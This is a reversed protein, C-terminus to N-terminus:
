YLNQKVERLAKQWDLYIATAGDMGLQDFDLEMRIMKMYKSAQGKTTAKPYKELLPQFHNQILYQKIKKLDHKDGDLRFFRMCIMGNIIELYVEGKGDGLSFPTWDVLSQLIKDASRDATFIKTKIDNPLRKKIQNYVAYLYQGKSVKEPNQWATEIWQEQRKLSKLYSSILTQEERNNSKTSFSDLITILDSYSYKESLAETKEELYEKTYEYNSTGLM